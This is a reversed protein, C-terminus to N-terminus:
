GITVAGPKPYVPREGNATGPRHNGARQEIPREAGAVPHREPRPVNGGPHTTELHVLGFPSDGLGPKSSRDVQGPYSPFLHDTSCHQPSLVVPQRTPPKDGHQPRSPVVVAETRTTGILDM